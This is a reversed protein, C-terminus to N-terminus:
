HAKGRGRDWLCRDLLLVSWFIPLPLPNRAPMTCFDRELQALIDDLDHGHARLASPIAPVHRRVGRYTQTTLRTIYFTRKVGTRRLRDLRAYGMDFIQRSHRQAWQVALDCKQDLERGSGMHLANLRGALYISSSISSTKVKRAM